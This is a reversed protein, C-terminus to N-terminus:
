GEYMINVSGADFTDTGNDTTVRIRDLTASLAKSGGAVQVYSSGTKMTSSYVWSNSDILTIVAHGILAESATTGYIVFGSTSSQNATTAGVLVCQSDYGTTEVGGSDGLQILKASAGNTSVGNLMVTIRRVWSPIGTFDISTGSTTAQATALTLPQSLKTPTVAADAIRAIPLTGTTLKSADIDSALKANTVNSDAIKATTVNADVIKATSVSGDAIASATGTVNGTVNGTLPGSFATAKVTGSVELKETPSATNIGVNGTSAFSAIPNALNDGAYIDLRQSVARLRMDWDNASPRFMLDNGSRIEALGELTLKNGVATTGIGVNGDATVVFPTADPNASDEVVLANGSGTQTIRVAANASNDVVTLKSTPSASNIGVNGSGDIVVRQTLTEGDYIRMHPASGSGYSDIFWGAANDSARAIQIEGGEHSTDQRNFKTTGISAVGTVSLTGTTQINQSGFNPAVKTGAIAASANIDANVITGDVLNDSAVTIAAPLAGTALKSLAVAADSKIDANVIESVTRASNLKTPTVTDGSTFTYNYSAM